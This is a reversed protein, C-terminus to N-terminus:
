ITVQYLRWRTCDRKFVKTKPPFPIFYDSVSKSKWIGREVDCTFRMFDPEREWLSGEFVYRPPHKSYTIYPADDIIETNVDSNM